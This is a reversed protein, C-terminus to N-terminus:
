EHVDKLANQVLKHVRETIKRTEQSLVARPVTAFRIMFLFVVLICLCSWALGGGSSRNVEQLTEAVRMIFVCSRALSGVVTSEQSAYELTETLDKFSLITVLLDFLLLTPIVLCVMGSLFLLTRRAEMKTNHSQCLDDRVLLGGTFNATLKAERVIHLPLVTESTSGLVSTWKTLMEDVAESIVPPNEQVYGPSQETTEKGSSLNHAVSNRRKRLVSNSTLTM